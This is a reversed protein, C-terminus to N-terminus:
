FKFGLSLYLGLNRDTDDNFVFTKDANLEQLSVDGKSNTIDALGYEVRMSAYFGKNLYYSFGGIVGYDLSNFKQEYETNDEFFYYAGITGPIDVDRGNVILLRSNINRNYQGAVNSNFDYDLGQVFIHPFEFLDGEGFTITGTAVPNLMLGVYAGGFFEIKNTLRLNLTIPLQLYSNSYTLEVVKKDRLLPWEARPSLDLALTGTVLKRYLYYGDDSSFEYSSGTQNYVIESRIGIVDTFNWQFNIGFHFGGALKYNETANPETTGLFTNQGLGARIGINYGQAFLAASGCVLLLSILLRKYYM